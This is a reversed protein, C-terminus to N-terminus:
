LLRGLWRQNVAQIDLLTVVDATQFIPDWGPDSVVQAGLKQYVQLLKPIPGGILSEGAYPNLPVAHSSKLYGYTNRWHDRAAIIDTELPKLSTAGMIYRCDLSDALTICERWIMPLIAPNRYDPHIAARGIELIQNHALHLNDLEFESETYFGIKSNAIARYYGVVKRDSVAVIHYANNDWQDIDQTLNIGFANQMAKARFELAPAVNDQHTLIQIKLTM